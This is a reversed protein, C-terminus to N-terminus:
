GIGFKVITAAYMVIAALVLVVVFLLNRKRPTMTEISFVGSDLTALGM